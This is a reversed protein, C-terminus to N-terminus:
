TLNLPSPLLTLVSLPVLAGVGSPGVGMGRKWQLNEGALAGAEVSGM